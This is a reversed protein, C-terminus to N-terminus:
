QFSNVLKDYYEARQSDVERLSQLFGKATSERALPDKLQLSWVLSAEPDSKIESTLAQIATDPAQPMSALLESAHVVDREALTKFLNGLFLNSQASPPVNEIAALLPAPGSPSDVVARILEKASAGENQGFLAALHTITEPEYIGSSVAKMLTGLAYASTNDAESMPLKGAEALGVILQQRLEKDKEPSLTDLLATNGSLGAHYAVGVAFSGSPIAELSSMVTDRGADSLRSAAIGLMAGLQEQNVPKGSNTAKVYALAVRQLADPDKLSLFVPAKLLVAARKTDTTLISEIWVSYERQDQMSAMLALQILLKEPLADSSDAKLLDLCLYDGDAALLTSLKKELAAGRMEALSQAKPVEVRANTVSGQREMAHKGGDAALWGIGGGSSICFALIICRPIRLPTSNKM